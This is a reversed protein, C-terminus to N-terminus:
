VGYHPQEGNSSIFEVNSIECHCPFPNPLETVTLGFGGHMSPVNSFSYPILSVTFNPDIPYFHSGYSHFCLM